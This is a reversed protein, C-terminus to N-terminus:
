GNVEGEKMLDLIYQCYLEYNDDTYPINNHECYYKYSYYLVKYIIPTVSKAVMKERFNMKDTNIEVKM